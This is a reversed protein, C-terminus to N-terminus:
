CRVLGLCSSDHTRGQPTTHLVDSGSAAEGCPDNAKRKTGAVLRVVAAAPAVAVARGQLLPPTEDAQQAKVAAAVGTVPTSCGLHAGASPLSQPLTQSSHLSDSGGGGSSSGRLVQSLQHTSVTMAAATSAGCAIQQQLPPPPPPKFIPSPSPLSLHAAGSADRVEWRQQVKALAAGVDGQLNHM